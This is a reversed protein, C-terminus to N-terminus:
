VGGAQRGQSPPSPPPCECASIEGASRSHARYFREPDAQYAQLCFSTCFYIPQAQRLAAFYNEPAVTMRRGCVLRKQPTLGSEM